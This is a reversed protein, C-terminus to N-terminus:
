MIKLDSVLDSAPTTQSHKDVRTTIPRFPDSLPLLPLGIDLKSALVRQKNRTTEVKTEGLSDKGCVLSTWETSILGSKTFFLVRLEYALEDSNAEIPIKRPTESVRWVTEPETPFFKYYVM